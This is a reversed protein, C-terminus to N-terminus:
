FILRRLYGNGGPYIGLDIMKQLTEKRYVDYGDAFTGADTYMKTFEPPSHHPRTIQERVFGCTGPNARIPPKSIVYCRSRM